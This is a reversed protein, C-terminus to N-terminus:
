RLAKPKGLIEGYLFGQVVSARGFTLGYPLPSQAEGLNYAKPVDRNHVDRACDAAIGTISTEMHAHNTDSSPRLLHQMNSTLSDNLTSTPAANMRSSAGDSSATLTTMRSNAITARKAPAQAYGPTGSMGEAPSAQVRQQVPRQQVPRQQAPRQQVPQAQVYQAQVPPTRVPAPTSIDPFRPDAMPRQVVVPPFRPDDNSQSAGQPAGQFVGQLEEAKAQKAAEQAERQKKKKAASSVFIAIVIVLWIIEM